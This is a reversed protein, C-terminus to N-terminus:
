RQMVLSFLVSSIVLFKYVLCETALQLWMIESPALRTSGFLPNLM